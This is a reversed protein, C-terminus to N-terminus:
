SVGHEVEEDKEPTPSEAVAHKAKVIVDEEFFARMGPPIVSLGHIAGGTRAELEEGVAAYDDIHIRIPYAAALEIVRQVKWEVHGLEVHRERSDELNVSVPKLKHRELWAWTADLAEASRGSTVHWPIAYQMQQLIYVLATPKDQIASRAYDDWDIPLGANVYKEIVGKRHRTDCLTSDLDVSLHFPVDGFASFRETYLDEDIDHM